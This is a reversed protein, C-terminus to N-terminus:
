RLLNSRARIGGGLATFIDLRDSERLCVEEFRDARLIEDNLSVALAVSSIKLDAILRAISIRDAIETEKGNLIIKM